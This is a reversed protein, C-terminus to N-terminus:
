GEADEPAGSPPQYNDPHYLIRGCHACAHFKDGAILENVVQPPVRMHCGSCVEGNLAVVGPGTGKSGRIRTYRSLLEGDVDQARPPRRAELAKRDQVAEELEADIQACQREIDELEADIRKKDEDLRAKADDIEVMIAIIREEKLAIQKRLMEMEHVLAQYEENKKVLFLQQDYKQIQGEKEEIDSECDRQELALKKCAEEREAIEAALRRRHIEFKNKQKPIEAERAKLAEIRLDLDQLQLLKNL